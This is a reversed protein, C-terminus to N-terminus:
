RLRRLIQEEIDGALIPQGQVKAYSEADILYRARVMMALQGLNMEPILVRPYRQLVEGLDGPLPNLMRLHLHAVKHVAAPGSPRRRPHGRVDIGM